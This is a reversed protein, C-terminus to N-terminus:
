FRFLHNIKVYLIHQDNLQPSGGTSLIPNNTNCLGSQLRTCLDPNINVYDSTYGLYFATGPHPLYTLLINGYLDKNNTLSTLGSNPLTALYEGIFNLSWAKDMQFNWREVIQHNDYAVDGTAPDSFHDFEYSSVLNLPKAPKVAISMQDSTVDVPLPGQGSPPSYNLTTGAYGSYEVSVSPTPATNFDVGAVSSQYEINNKLASYDAPRLRDQGSYLFFSLGTNHKFSLNYSPNFYLDLPLGNHDWIRESYLSLSHALLPGHRPRFTYTFRGNPLRVDPRTFFGTQTLYGTAIDSYGFWFGTHLDSYSVNQTWGQGSQRSNSTNRTESTVGQGSITWRGRLRARYDVGGNRNFSNRYEQDAYIVGVNSQSGIDRNVRGVYSHSRSGYEPSDPLAQLGPNRDDVSLFGLAYEGVKGTLRQGFQPMVVNPTYYLNLPTHFYSSNEIFFPRLEPYYYQFRQNPPAPDNVGIQSFDPNFTMDLALSNRLVFKTDLGAYGQLLKQNFVPNVPNSTNLQRFSHALGYPQFQWNKGREVDKFGEAVAEQTLQGAVSHKVQPWYVSEDKRSIGRQLIIGWTRSTGMDVNEFRLSAFPIRMLVAYGGPTRTGWTDWVTDFSFDSGTQETYLADAQVGLANTKFLFARRSDHFTDLLVSVSDDDGLSDRRLLHARLARPNDDECVFAVYLYERTYGLYAVTPESSPVGDEPYRAIFNSIRLMERVANSIKAKPLFDSLKPALSLAPVMVHPAGSPLPPLVLSAGGNDSPLAAPAPPADHNKAGALAAAAFILPLLLLCLLRLSRLANGKCSVPASPNSSGL